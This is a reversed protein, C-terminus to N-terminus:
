YANAGPCGFNIPDESHLCPAHVHWICTEYWCVEKLADLGLSHKALLLADKARDHATYVLLVHQHKPKVFWRALWSTGPISEAESQVWAWAARCTRSLCLMLKPAGFTTCRQTLSIFVTDNCFCRWISGHIGWGYHLCAQQTASASLNCTTM